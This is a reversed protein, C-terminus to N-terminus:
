GGVNWPLVKSDKQRGEGQCGVLSMSVLGKGMKPEALEEATPLPFHLGPAAYGQASAANKTWAKEEGPKNEQQVVLHALAVGTLTRGKRCFVPLAPAQMIGAPWPIPLQPCSISPLFPSLHWFGGPKVKLRATM